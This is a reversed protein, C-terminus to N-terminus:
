LERATSRTVQSQYALVLGREDPQVPNHTVYAFEANTTTWRVSDADVALDISSNAQRPQAGATLPPALLLVVLFCLRFAASM